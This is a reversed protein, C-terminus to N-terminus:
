QWGKKSVSTSGAPMTIQFTIVVGAHLTKVMWLLIALYCRPNVRLSRIWSANYSSPMRIKSPTMAMVCPNRAKNREGHSSLQEVFSAVVSSGDKKFKPTRLLEWWRVGFIEDVEIFNICKNGQWYKEYEWIINIILNKYFIFYFNFFNWIKNLLDIVIINRVFIM